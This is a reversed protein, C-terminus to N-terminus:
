GRMSQAPTPKGKAFASTAVTGQVSMIQARPEKSLEAANMGAQLNSVLQAAGFSQDQLMRM